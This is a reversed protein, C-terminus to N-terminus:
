FEEGKVEEIEQERMFKYLDSILTYASGFNINTWSGDVLLSLQLPLKGFDSVSIREVAGDEILQFLRNFVIGLSTDHSRDHEFRTKKSAMKTVRGRKNTNYLDEPRTLTVRGKRSTWFHM